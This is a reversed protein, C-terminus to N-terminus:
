ILTQEDPFAKSWLLIEVSERLGNTWFPDSKILEEVEPRSGAEVVWCAGIPDAGPEERLSGAVLISRRREALWSLHGDLHQTRVALGDPKDVFRIVYLM